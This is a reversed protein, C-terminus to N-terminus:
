RTGNRHKKFKTIMQKNCAKKICGFILYHLKIQGNKLSLGKCLYKSIFFFLRKSNRNRFQEYVFRKYSIIVFGDCVYGLWKFFGESSQGLRNYRVSDQKCIEYRKQTKKM